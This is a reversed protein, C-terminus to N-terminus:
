FSTPNHQVEPHAKFYLSSQYCGTTTAYQGSFIAARSPACYVGGTHANWFTVGIDALRDMNPTVAQEYGLPGVWDCLDDLAFFVINPQKASVGTFSCLVLTLILLANKM